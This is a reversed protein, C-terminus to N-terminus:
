QRTPRMARELLKHLGIGGLVLLAFAILLVIAGVVEGIAILFGVVVLILLRTSGHLATASWPPAGQRGSEIWAIHSPAVVWLLANRVGNL